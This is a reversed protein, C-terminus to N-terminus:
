PVHFEYDAIREQRDGRWGFLRVVYNGSPTLQRSVGITFNSFSTRKLGRASWVPGGGSRIIEVSYDDFSRDSSDNLVLTFLAADIPVTAIAPGGRTSDPNLDIMAVNPQASESTTAGRQVLPLLAIVALAAGASAAAVLDWRFGQRTVAHLESTPVAPDFARAKRALIGLERAITRCGSCAAIHMDAAERERPTLEYCAYREWTPDDLHATM